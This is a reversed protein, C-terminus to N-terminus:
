FFIILLDILNVSVKTNIVIELCPFVRWVLIRAETALDPPNWPTFDTQLTETALQESTAMTGYLINLLEMLRCYRTPSFHIGLSPMQMSVRTSPHSPHPAKIKVLMVFYFVSFAQSSSESGAYGCDAAIFM